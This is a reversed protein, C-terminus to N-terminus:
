GGARELLGREITAPGREFPVGIGLSGGRRHVGGIREKARVGVPSFLGGSGGPPGFSWYARRNDPGGKRFHPGGAAAAVVRPGGLYHGLGDGEFDRIADHARRIFGFPGLSASIELFTM